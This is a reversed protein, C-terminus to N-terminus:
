EPCLSNTPGTRSARPARGPPRRPAGSSAAAGPRGRWRQDRREAAQGVLDDALVPQVLRRRQGAAVLEDVRGQAARRLRGVDQGIEAPPELRDDGIALPDAGQRDQDDRRGVLRAELGAPGRERRRRRSRPGAIPRRRREPRGAGGLRAIRGPGGGPVGRDELTIGSKASAWKRRARRSSRSPCGPRPRGAVVEGGEVVVAQGDAARGGEAGGVFLDGAPMGAADQDVAAALQGRDARVAQDAVTDDLIGVMGRQDAVDGQGAGHEPLELSRFVKGVRPRDCQREVRVRAGPMEAHVARPPRGHALPRADMVLPHRAIAIIGLLPQLLGAPIGLGRLPDLVALAGATTRLDHSTWHGISRSRPM